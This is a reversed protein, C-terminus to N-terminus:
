HTPEMVNNHTYSMRALLFNSHVDIHANQPIDMVSHHTYYSLCPLPVESLVDIHVYHPANM